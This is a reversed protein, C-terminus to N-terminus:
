PERRGHICVRRRHGRVGSWLKARLELSSAKRAAVAFREIKYVQEHGQVLREKDFGIGAGDLIGYRPKPKALGFVGSGRAGMESYALATTPHPARYAPRTEVVLPMSIADGEDVDTRFTTASFRFARKEYKISSVKSTPIARPPKSTFDSLCPFAFMASDRWRVSRRCIKRM